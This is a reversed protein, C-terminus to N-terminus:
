VQLCAGSDLRFFSLVGIQRRVYREGELFNSLITCLRRKLLDVGSDSLNQAVLLNMRVVPGPELPGIGEDTDYPNLTVGQRSMVSLSRTINLTSLKQPTSSANECTWVKLDSCEGLSDEPPLPDSWGQTQSVSGSVDTAYVVIRSKGDYQFLRATQVVAVGHQQSRCFRPDQNSSECDPPTDDMGFLAQTGPQDVVDVAVFVAGSYTYQPLTKAREATDASGSSNIFYSVDPSFCATPDDYCLWGGGSDVGVENLRLGLPNEDAFTRLKTRLQNEEEGAGVGARDGRDSGAL